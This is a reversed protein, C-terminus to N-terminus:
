GWAPYQTDFVALASILNICDSESIKEHINKKSKQLLTQYHHNWLSLGDSECFKIFYFEPLPFCIELLYQQFILPFVQSSCDFHLQQLDLGYWIKIKSIDTKNWIM